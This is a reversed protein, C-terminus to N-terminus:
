LALRAFRVVAGTSRWEGDLRVERSEGLAGFSRQASRIWDEFVVPFLIIQVIKAAEESTAKKTRDLSHIMQLLWDCLASWGDPLQATQLNEFRM